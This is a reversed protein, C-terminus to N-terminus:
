GYTPTGQTAGSPYYACGQELRLSPHFHEASVFASLEYLKIVITLLEQLVPGQNPIYNLFALL